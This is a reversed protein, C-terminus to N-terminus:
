KWREQEAKKAALIRAETAAFEEYSPVEEGYKRAVPEAFFVYRDDNLEVGVIAKPWRKGFRSRLPHLPHEAPVNSVRPSEATVTRRVDEKRVRARHLARRYAIAGGLDRMVEQKKQNLAWIKAFSAHAGDWAADDWPREGAADPAPSPADDELLRSTLQGAIEHTEM